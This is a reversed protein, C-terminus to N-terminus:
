KHFDILGGMPHALIQGLQFGYNDCLMRIIDGFAFAVGGVFYVPHNWIEKYKCLHNFFFDNLSDEIINEIMYHGRNESLFIAYSAIYRNPLPQRYVHDLIELKNTKYKTIFKEMLEADFTEYLFHQLVKKGMYAGSGEDGLVYGLGPSNKVIKKGNYYCSNSGTGLICSIGKQHGCLAHAAGILDHQVTIKHAQAFVTKISKQVKKAQINNACGTGYYIIEDVNIKGLQSMLEEQLL